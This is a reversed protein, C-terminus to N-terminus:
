TTYVVGLFGWSFVFLDLTTRLRNKKNYATDQLASLKEVLSALM